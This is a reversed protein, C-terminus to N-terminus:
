RFYNGNDAKQFKKEQDGSFGGGRIHDMAENYLAQDQKLEKYLIKLKQRSQELGEVLNDQTISEINKVKQYPNEIKIENLKSCLHEIGAQLDLLM